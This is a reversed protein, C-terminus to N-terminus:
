HLGENNYFAKMRRVYDKLYISLYYSDITHVRNWCFVTLLLGPVGYRSLTGLIGFWAVELSM